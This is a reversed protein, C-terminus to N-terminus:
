NVLLWSEGTGITKVMDFDELKSNHLRRPSQLSAERGLKHGRLVRDSSMRVSACEPVELSRKPGQDASQKCPGVIAARWKGEGGGLEEAPPTPKDLLPRPIDLPRLHALVGPTPGPRAPTAPPSPSAAPVPGRYGAALQGCTTGAGPGPLLGGRWGGPCLM